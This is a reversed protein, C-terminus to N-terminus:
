FSSFRVCVCVFFVFVLIKPKENAGRRQAGAQRLDTGGVRHFLGRSAVARGKDDGIPDPSVFVVVTGGERELIKGRPARIM